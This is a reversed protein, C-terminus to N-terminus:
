QSQPFQSITSLIFLSIKKFYTNKFVYLLVNCLGFMEFSYLCVATFLCCFSRDQSLATCFNVCLCHCVYYVVFISTCVKNQM